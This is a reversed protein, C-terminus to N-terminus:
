RTGQNAPLETARAPAPALGRVQDIAIIAAARAALACGVLPRLRVPWAGHYHKTYYHFVSRHFEWVLRSSRGRSSQGEHHVVRATPVCFVGFGANGIRRCWDADEWYMFFAEDL